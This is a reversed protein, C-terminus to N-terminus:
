GYRDLAIEIVTNFIFQISTDIAADLIVHALFLTASSLKVVLLGKFLLLM